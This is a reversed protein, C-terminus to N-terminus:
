EDDSRGVSLRAPMCKHTESRVSSRRFDGAFAPKYYRSTEKEVMTLGNAWTWGLELM